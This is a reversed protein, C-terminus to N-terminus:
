KKLNIQKRRVATRPKNFFFFRLLFSWMERYRERNNFDWWHHVLIAVHNNVLNVLTYKPETKTICFSLCISGKQGTHTVLLWPSGSHAHFERGGPWMLHHWPIHYFNLPHRSCCAHHVKIKVVFDKDKLFRYVHFPWRNFPNGGNKKQPFQPKSFDPWKGVLGLIILPLFPIQVPTHQSYMASWYM